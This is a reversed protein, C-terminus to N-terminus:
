FALHGEKKLWALGEEETAFAGELQAEYAAELIPKFAPGPTLGAQILTRGTVLRKPLAARERARALAARAAEAASLDGHSARCDAVHVALLDEFHPESVWRLLRGERMKDIDKFKLHERVIVAVREVHENSFRLRRLIRRAITEGVECHFDFRIRDTGHAEPTRLTEPKGVDHLLTAWAVAPSPSELFDLALVTHVFVDGEPHFAEPQPVGKMRAVEPLLPELLGAEDLAVLGRGARPATFIKTLEDRVREAAVERVEKARRRVAEALADDLRFDLRHAFRVARLLRLRDEALRRDPDGVSRLVAAELDGRGGFPDVVEGTETDLAMANVTFDRRALDEELTAFRVSDPRRGDSYPGDLRYTAVEIEVGADRVLSVGFAAGVFNVRRFVEGVREPTASTAVDVDAPSEGRLLDRVAGGVIHATEGAARLRRAVELAARGTETEALRDLLNM